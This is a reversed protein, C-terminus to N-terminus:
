KLSMIYTVMLRADEKSLAPHPTMPVQGWNGAGGTIVKGALSDIIAPQQNAYRQAVEKYAPGVAKEDVKHCALCDSQAILEMGKEVDANATQQAAPADTTQAGTGADTGTNTNNADSADDNGCSAMFAAATFFIFLKKM